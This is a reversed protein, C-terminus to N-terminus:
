LGMDIMFPGEPGTYDRCTAYGDAHGVTPAAHDTLAYCVAYGDAQGAVSFPSTATSRWVELGIQSVRTKAQFHAWVELGVQSVRLHGPNNVWVELGIQSVRLSM